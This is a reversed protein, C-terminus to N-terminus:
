DHGAKREAEHLTRKYPALRQHQKALSYNRRDLYHFGALLIDQHDDLCLRRVALRGDAHWPKLADGPFRTFFKIRPHPAAPQDFAPDIGRLADLLLVDPIRCEALSLIDVQYQQALRAIVASNDAETPLKRLLDGKEIDFNWFLVIKTM